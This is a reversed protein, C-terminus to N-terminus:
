LVIYFLHCQMVKHLDATKPQNSCVETDSLGDSEHEILGDNFKFIKM